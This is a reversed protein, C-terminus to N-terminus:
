PDAIAAGWVCEASYLIVPAPKWTQAVYSVHAANRYRLDPRTGLGIQPM